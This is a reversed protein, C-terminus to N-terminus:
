QKRLNVAQCVKSLIDEPIPCFPGSSLFSEFTQLRAMSGGDMTNHRQSYWLLGDAQLTVGDYGEQTHDWSWDYNQMPKIEFSTNTILQQYQGEWETLLPENPLNIMLLSSKGITFVIQKSSGILAIAYVFDSFPLPCGFFRGENPIWLGAWGNGSMALSSSDPSWSLHRIGSKAINYKHYDLRFLETTTKYNTICLGDNIIALWKGNPALARTQGKAISDSLMIPLDLRSANSVFTLSRLRRAKSQEKHQILLSTNMDWVRIEGWINVSAVKTSDNSFAISQVQNTFGSLQGVLQHTQMDWITIPKNDPGGCAIWKQNPSIAIAYIASANKIKDLRDIM